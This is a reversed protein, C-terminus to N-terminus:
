NQRVYATVPVIYQISFYKPKYGKLLNFTKFIKFIKLNETKVTVTKRNNQQIGYM